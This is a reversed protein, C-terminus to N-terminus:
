TTDKWTETITANRGLHRRLMARLSGLDVGYTVAPGGNVSYSYIWKWAFRANRGPTAYQKAREIRVVAADREADTLSAFHATVNYTM